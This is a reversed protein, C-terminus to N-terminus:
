SKQAAIFNHPFHSISETELIQFNAGAIMAELESFEFLKVYLKGLTFLKLAPPMFIKLLTGKEGLCPTASIFLGGPKLLENIREGAKQPDELLHLINFGLVADYSGIKYQEDFLSSQAFQVNAIHCEEAKRKAVRIMQSSIDIAHIEKVSGALQNTITATGCAFEFVKDSSNLYKKTNAIMASYMADGEQSRNDYRDARKDWM